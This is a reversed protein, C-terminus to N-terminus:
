PKTIHHIKKETVIMDMPTDHPEAPINEVMQFEYAIGIKPCGVKKLLRDYFGKGFGIRHGNKAFVIGPVLVLHIKEPAIRPHHAAPEPINFKGPNLVSPNDVEHLDLTTGNKVRPLIIIKNSMKKTFIASLDVEGHVPMYFLVNKADKYPKMRLLRKCIAKDKQAKEVPHHNLRELLKEARLKTKL